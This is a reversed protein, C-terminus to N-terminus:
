GVIFGARWLTVVVDMQQNHQKPSIRRWLALRNEALGPNKRLITVAATAYSKNLVSATYSKAPISSVLGAECLGLFAGRPCPKDRSSASAFEKEVAAEWADVPSCAPNRRCAKVATLSARGYGTM